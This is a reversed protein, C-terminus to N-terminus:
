QLRVASQAPVTTTCLLYFKPKTPTIVAPVADSIKVELTQIQAVILNVNKNTSVKGGM